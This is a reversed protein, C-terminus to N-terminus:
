HFNHRLHIFEADDQESGTLARPHAGREGLHKMRQRALGKKEV